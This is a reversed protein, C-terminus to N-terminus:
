IFSGYRGFVTDPAHLRLMEMVGLVVDADIKHPLDLKEEVLAADHIRAFHHGHLYVGETSHCRSNM